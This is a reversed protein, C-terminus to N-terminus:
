IGLFDDDEEGSDSDNFQEIDGLNIPVGPAIDMGMSNSGKKKKGAAGKRKKKPKTSMQDDVAAELKSLESRSAQIQDGVFEYIAIAEQAIQNGEGNFKIANSKMLQFDEYLQDVTRYEYRKIKARMTQLDIPNSIVEYYRPILKRNVPKAFPPSYPRAEVAAVIAELKEAFIVHPRRDRISGRERRNNTSKRKAQANYVELEEEERQRKRMREEKSTKTKLKGFQLAGRGRPTVRGDGRKRGGRRKGSHMRGSRSSYEFDDEDEFMAHGPLKEDAGHEYNWERSKPREHEDKKQALSAEIKGVEDPHLIFKFTTTQRGDPHTKTIKKRIVKRNAMAAVHRQVDGVDAAARMGEEAAKEEERKRRLSALERADKNELENDGAPGTGRMKEKGGGHAAM